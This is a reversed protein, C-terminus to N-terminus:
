VDKGCLNELDVSSRNKLNQFSNHQLFQLMFRFLLNSNLGSNASTTNQVVPGQHDM